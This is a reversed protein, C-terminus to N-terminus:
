QYVIELVPWNASTANDGSYFGLYDDGSDDNDGTAFYVRFQTHGTKNVFGRGTSNVAGSSWDGNAGPNSMTAVQTADASAQFDGTALATANGFGTGGRIDVSCTGHTNFPNAGVLTGRRLRLTASVITAGDPLSSTNFSVVSKYQRDSADDGIRLGSTGNGSASISGGASTTEGSELVWGDQSAVATFNVTTQNPLTSATAQASNASAGSGNRARVVFHYTTNAALGTNNFSTSNGALTSIDSYPGGSTTSRAVIFEVENTSNDSWTLNIQSSSITSANLGSPAVPAPAQVFQIADAMVVQTADPFGDTIKVSGATGAAFNFTGLYNWKGGNVKQNAFVTSTGGSHAIVHPANTTRNNGQPHWEFVDYAAATAIFPTYKVSNAGSGQALFRYDTGYKDTSSTGASWGGLVVAATNDILLDTEPTTASAENSNPSSGGANRARVVYYYTTNGTLGTNSFSTVNAALTAVDTYSGGATTSRAVIFNAENPSNDTWALDIRTARIAAASLGGPASPVTPLTTASAQASTASSGGAGTARVVYYYTAGASLGTNSYSTTNAAVTAIDSYPGGSVTSRGVIFNNENNSNDTWALNIQSSSITTASLGSPANPPLIPTGAYVFKIGDALVVQGADSHNDAIRVFGSTGTAFNYTGVLVWQAENAQQNINVTVTGGNYTIVHKANTTRNAGATHWTYVKYDGAVQINPTFQVYASGAGQGKYRYNTGFKNTALASSTWSGTVTATVNDIVINNVVGPLDGITGAKINAWQVAGHLDARWFNVGKYGGATVAFPDCLLYDIFETIDKDPITAAEPPALPGYVQAVPALPKIANTWIGTLSNQWTSWEDDTWEIAASSSMDFSYHYIQPMVTDCYFGFEKYPFSSHFSIIPMPAHALFKTPWLNKIGQCLQIALAPGNTGIWPRNSEWEAEADLVFGDAGCNYVYTALAIEGPVDSGYSRTYGFVKIGAAHGANVVAPTFQPGAGSGNFNTSGTGAKIIVYEIGQSKQFAFLSALNTVSNVNGGLKNTAASLFYIWDGKGLNESDVGGDFLVASANPVLTWAVFLTLVHKRLSSIFSFM